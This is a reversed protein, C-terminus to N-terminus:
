ANAHMTKPVKHYFMLFLFLVPAWKEFQGEAAGTDTLLFFLVM